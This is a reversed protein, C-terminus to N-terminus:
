TTPLLIHFCAWSGEESEAYIKGGHRNVIKRCLALGLGTGEIKDKSNLRSFIGFIKEAFAPNFGIGNDMIKIHAFNKANEQALGTNIIMESTINITPPVDSKSFKLANNILNYFLQHLLVPNGHVNPLIGSKIVANKQIIALELDTEVEDLTRNLDVMEFAADNVELTSYAL